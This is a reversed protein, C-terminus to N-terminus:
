PERMLFFHGEWLLKNVGLALFTDLEQEDGELAVLARRLAGPTRFTGRVPEKGIMVKERVGEVVLEELVVRPRLSGRLVFLDHFPFLRVFPGKAEEDAERRCLCRWPILSACEVCLHSRKGCDGCLLEEARYLPVDCLDCMRPAFSTPLRHSFTPLDQKSMKKFRGFARHSQVVNM